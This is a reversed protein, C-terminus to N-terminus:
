KTQKNTFLTCYIFILIMTFLTSMLISKLMLMPNELTFFDILYLISHHIFLLSLTYIYFNRFGMEDIGPSTNLNFEDKRTILRIFFPRLFAIFVLPITHLGWTGSLADIILGMAFSSFLLLSGPVEFPLVLVFLVYLYPSALGFLEVHDLVFVQILILMFFRIIDGLKM